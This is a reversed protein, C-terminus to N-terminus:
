LEVATDPDVLRLTKGRDEFAQQAEDHDIEIPPFTDYHLGIAEDCGLKDLARAAADADMTFRGGICLAAIDIDFREGHIAMDSHLATDGSVYLTTNDAQVVFGGPNGGYAGDPLVSSHVASVYTATIGQQDVTGGHNVPVTNDIGRDSLWNAIEFNTVVSAKTRSAIAKADAIHDQHGHTIFIVDPSVDDATAGTHPNPGLFPDILAQVGGTELMFTSHGYYTFKM